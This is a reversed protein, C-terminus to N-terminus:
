SAEHRSKSHRESCRATAPATAGARRRRRYGDQAGPADGRLWLGRAVAISARAAGSRRRGRRLADPRAAAEAVVRAMPTSDQLRGGFCCSRTTAAGARARAPLPHARRDARRALPRPRGSGDTRGAGAGAAPRCRRRGGRDARAGRPFPARRSRGPDGRDGRDVRAAGGTSKPAPREPSRATPSTASSHTASPSSPRAPSRRPGPAACCSAAPSRSSSTTPSPPASAGRGRRALVGQRARVRGPALTKEGPAPRRAPGRDGGAGDAARRGRQGDRRDHARVGGRLAPQRGGACAAVASRRRRDAPAGSCRPSCSPRRQTTSLRLRSRRRTSAAAAGPRAAPRAARPARHLPCAAALRDVLGRPARRLRPHRRRGLPSGRARARAPPGRRAARLLAALGRVSRRPYAGRGSGLFPELARLLWRRERRTPRARPSRRPWAAARRRTCRRDRSRRSRACCTPSRTSRAAGTPSLAAKGGARM